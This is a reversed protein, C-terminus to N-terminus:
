AQRGVIAEHLDDFQRRMREENRRLKMRFEFRSGVLRVGEEHAENGRREFVTSSLRCHPRHDGFGRDGRTM